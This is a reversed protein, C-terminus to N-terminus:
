RGARRLKDEFDAVQMQMEEVRDLHMSSRM